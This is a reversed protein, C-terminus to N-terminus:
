SLSDIYDTSIETINNVSAQVNDIADQLDKHSKAADTKLEYPSLDIKAKYEGLKEWKSDDYPQSMDGTYVYEIYINQNESITNQVLYIKYPNIDALDTPLSNVYRFINIDIVIDGQGLISNGNITKLDPMISAALQGKHDIQPINLPDNGVKYTGRGACVLYKTPDSKTTNNEILIGSSSVSVKQGPYEVLLENLKTNLTLVSGQTGDLVVTKDGNQDEAYTVANLTLEKEIPKYTSTADDWQKGKLKIKLHNPDSGDAEWDDYANDLHDGLVYYKGRFWVRNQNQIIVLHKTPSVTGDALKADFNARTKFVLLFKQDM